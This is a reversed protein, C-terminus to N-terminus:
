RQNSIHENVWDLSVGKEKLMRAVGTSEDRLLALLLHQPEIEGAGLRNAADVALIMTHWFKPSRFAKALEQQHVWEFDGHRSHALDHGEDV